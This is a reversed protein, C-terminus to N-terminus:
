ESDSSEADKKESWEFKIKGKKKPGAGKASKRDEKFARCPESLDGWHENLCIGPRDSDQCFQVLDAGCALRMEESGPTPARKKQERPMGHKAAKCEPSLRDYNAELCQGPTGTGACLRELDAACAIKAAELDRKGSGEKKAEWKKRMGEKFSRCGDSVREWHDHLCRGPDSAGPCLADVDAGCHKRWDDGGKGPGKGEAFALSALSLILAASLAHASPRSM